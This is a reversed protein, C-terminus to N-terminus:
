AGPMARLHTVDGAALATPESEGDALVVIRGFADVDRATGVISRDGPLEMRVRAGITACVERYAATLAAIDDPWSRVGDALEALVAGALASRDVPTDTHLNLSTATPVPLDAVTLGTNIGLGIVVAPHTGHALEALIGAVKSGDVLVDNPWKLVADVGTVTRIARVAAVGTLLPLWGLVGAAAAGGSGVAASMALQAGAPSSWVRGHRGRGAVQHDAILVHGVADDAACRAVLDANTSGTQAVVEISRWYTGAARGILEPDLARPDPHSTM